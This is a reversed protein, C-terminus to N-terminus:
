CHHQHSILIMAIVGPRTVAVALSADTVSKSALHGALLTGRAPRDPGAEPKLQKLTSITYMARTRHESDLRQQDRTAWWFVVPTLPPTFEM